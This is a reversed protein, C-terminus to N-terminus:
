KSDFSQVVEVMQTVEEDTLVGGWPAMAVNKLDPYGAGAVGLKIVKAIREKDSGHGAKWAKDTFNRAKPNLGAAAPGNGAGKDGHCSACFNQYKTMIPSVEAVVETQPDPIMGQETLTPITKNSILREERAANLSPRPDYQWMCASTIFVLAILVYKGM